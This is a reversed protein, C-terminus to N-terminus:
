DFFISRYNNVIKYWKARKTTGSGQQLFAKYKKLTLYIDKFNAVWFFNRSEHNACWNKEIIKM